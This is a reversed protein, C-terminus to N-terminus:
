TPRILRLPWRFKHTMKDGKVGIGIALICDREPFGRKDYGVFVAKTKKGSVPSIQWVIDGRRYKM